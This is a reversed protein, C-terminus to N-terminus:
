LAREKPSPPLKTETSVLSLETPTDFGDSILLTFTLLNDM